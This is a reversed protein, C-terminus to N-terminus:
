RSTLFPIVQESYFPEQTCWFVYNVKLYDRAFEVLAPITVQKGTKPSRHEYNGWQVAIGTPVADSCARILPYSHKMQGPKDPLLDPGGLGVHMEKAGGFVARLFGHDQEPLWEGPMFNAYQIVVSRAFADKAVAMNTLIADRYIQPTFGKPYLKGTEGFDVSTEPLNIGELVGDLQRGLATFLQHLRKQVAPDWRRAVWGAPKAKEDNGDETEFQKDAGGNFETERLLYEPVNIIKVDFSSDQVQVFLRKGNKQLFEAAMQIGSFDYQGKKPELERWTFKLQAGELAPTELFSKERMKEHDRNFFVYHHLEAALAERAFLAILLFGCKTRM